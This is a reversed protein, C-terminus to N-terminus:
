GTSKKLVVSYNGNKLYCFFDVYQLYEDDVLNNVTGFPYNHTIANILCFIGAALFFGIIYKKRAKKSHQM